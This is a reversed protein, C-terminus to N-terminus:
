QFFDNEQKFIIWFETMMRDLLAQQMPSLVRDIVEGGAKELGNGDIRPTAFIEGDEFHDTPDDEEWDTEYESFSSSSDNDEPSNLPLHYEQIKKPSGTSRTSNLMDALQYERNASPSDSIQLEGPVQLKPFQLKEPGQLEGQVQLKPVQLREPGQLEEPIQLEGLDLSPLPLHDPGAWDGCTFVDHERM